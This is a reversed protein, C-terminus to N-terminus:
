WNITLGSIVSFRDTKFDILPTTWFQIPTSPISVQMRPGIGMLYEGFAGIGLWDIVQYNLQNRCFFGNGGTEFIHLTSFTESENGMWISGAIRWPDEAQELGGGIGLQIWNVPCYTIGAYAQAYDEAVWSFAFWGFKDILDKTLYNAMVISAENDVVYSEVEAYSQGFAPVSLNVLVILCVVVLVLKKM